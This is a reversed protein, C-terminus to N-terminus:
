PANLGFNQRSNNSAHPSDINTNTTINNFMPIVGNLNVPLISGGGGGGGGGGNDCDGGTITTPDSYSAAQSGAGSVTVSNTVTCPADDAVRVDLELIPYSQFPDVVSDNTCTISAQGVTCNWSIHGEVGAVTLGQPLTDTLTLTGSTPDFSSRNTVQFRYTGTEGRAFSGSHFKAVDLQPAASAPTAGAAFPLAVATGIVTALAATRRRM